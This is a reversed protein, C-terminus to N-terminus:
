ESASGVGARVFLYTKLHGLFTDTYMYARYDLSSACSRLSNMGFWLARWLSHATRCPRQVPLRSWWFRAVLLPFPDAGGPGSVTRNPLRTCPRCQEVPKPRLMQTKNHGICEKSSCFVPTLLQYCLEHIAITYEALPYYAQARHSRQCSNPIRGFNVGPRVYTRKESELPFGTM